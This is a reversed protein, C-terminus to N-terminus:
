IIRERLMYGIVSGKEILFNLLVLVRQKLEKNEKIKTRNKYVYERAVNEMYYVTNKELKAAFLNQNNTLMDSIWLIGDDLYNSGIGNLLKSISYLTSPYHGIEQSIEKLFRKDRNKLTHWSTVSEEWWPHAFLYNKVVRDTYWNDNKDKCVEIVRDKFLNWVEWFNEYNKLRDQEIVFKEFLDAIVQSSNFDKIFPELYNRIEDKPISLIFHVLKKLFDYKLIPDVEDDRNDSLLKEAFVSIIEKVIKKHIENQTGLPILLFATRLCFLESKEIDEFNISFLQNNLIKKLDEKNEKRFRELIKNENLNEHLNYIRKRLNEEHLKKLLERYKSELLLYGFLISQADDFSIEWLNNSVASVPYDLFGKNMVTPSHDFLKLFLITKIREKEEPFKKLLSPLVSIASSAGDFVQYQYNLNLSYSAADLVIEKCFCNEKESLKESFDRLLVSCVRTPISHNFLYFGEDTKYEPELHEPPNIAKLKAIIEKIEKLALNPDKEYKEYKKYEENNEIKYQSWLNLASYKFNESIKKQSDESKKRLIPDIEPNFNIQIGEDTQKTTPEMKRSDVRALFLRWNEDEETQKSEPPLRQYYNDLIDWLIKQREKGQQESTKESRFFQYRLFLNELRLERHKDDCAKLREEKFISDKFNLGFNLMSLTQKRGQEMVYRKTDYLFFEKTQFLIRAVNFTKEQYALVISTVVASISASKSRKLLYLLWGELRKSDLHKARELFFKELAMHISQLVNPSVQTGRYTCWLRDCIYQKTTKGKGVYVEVEEVEHKTFDSKAFHEVTKNTFELIFDITQRPASQLLWYIPTQYSSAPYRATSYRDEMGFCPDLKIGSVPYTGQKPTITWFLNALQLVSEPLVQCIPGRELETLITESLDYYPDRPNKWKNELIEDLVRKLTEKIEFAGSLITQFMKDGLDDNHSFYHDGKLTWQYYRLAILSSYKTTEGTKFNTNWDHIIPLVFSIKEIGITNLNEYVFKILNEWGQGKPKTLVHKLTLLDAKTIGLQNFFEKNIEKCGIRLLFSIRKLLEQENDLLSNKLNKFFTESYDSLLVSILTEDKWSPSIEEDAVIAEIFNGIEQDQLLLKESVWNRFSRRIPLSQGLNEFFEKTNNRQSYERNIRKELAWEEYIDHTIFYGKDNEYGLIGDNVLEDLISLENSTVLFFSGKNAREFAFKLFSESRSTKNKKINQNWLRNKFGAYDLDEGNKKYSKLYENLYFPTKILELLKQDEPLNFSYESSISDLDDQKLKPLNIDLPCINYIDFFQDNLDKLYNERTTFITRWNNETLSILFEKFPDPNELDILKEASDIVVTKNEEEKHVYIFEKINSGKFLDNISDLKFETAKFIYFSQKEESKQNQYLNRIIATKGVGAAGSLVLVPSPDNKLKEFVDNRDIEITKGNFVICTQIERLINETNRKKESLLDLISEERTFFHRAISENNICVFPSKFFNGMHDWDIQIGLDEAKEDIDLKAQPDNQNRGQGWNKNTYFIIRTINPYDNKAKEIFKIIEAKNDSLPTQYFKAQWGITENDKRIPDTEIHRQNEYGSVGQLKNFEKCFLLYCLWEFNDQPNESFKAKFIDWDPKVM